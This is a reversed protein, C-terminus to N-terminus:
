SMSACSSCVGCVPCFTVHKPQVKPSRNFYNSRHEDHAHSNLQLYEAKIQVTHILMYEDASVAAEAATKIKHESVFTALREPLINKFQELVILESLQEFTTVEVSLSWHNFFGLLDRAVEFYSQRDNKKRNRFRWRYFEPVQEYARLVAEKM